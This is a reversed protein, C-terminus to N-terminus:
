ISLTQAISGASSMVFCVSKATSVLVATRVLVAPETIAVCRLTTHSCTTHCVLPACCIHMALQEISLTLHLDAHM